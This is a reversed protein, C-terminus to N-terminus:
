RQDAVWARSRAGWVGEERGRGRGADEGGRGAIGRRGCYNRMVTPGTFVAEETAALIRDVAHIRLRTLGWSM